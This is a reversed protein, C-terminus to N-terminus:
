KGCRGSGGSFVAAGGWVEGQGAEMVAGGKVEVAATLGEGVLAVNEEGRVDGTRQGWAHRRERERERERERMSNSVGDM